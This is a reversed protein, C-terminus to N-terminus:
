GHKWFQRTPIIDNVVYHPFLMWHCHNHWGKVFWVIRLCVLLIVTRVYTDGSLLTWTALTPGVQPRFSGPPGWTPRMFRAIQTTLHVRHINTSQSFILPISMKREINKYTSMSLQILQIALTKDSLFIKVDHFRWVVYGTFSYSRPVFALIIKWMGDLNKLKLRIRQVLVCRIKVM